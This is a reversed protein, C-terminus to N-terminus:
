SLTRFTWLYDGNLYQESEPVAHITGKKDVRHPRLGYASLLEVVNRISHGYHRASSEIQETQVVITRSAEIIRPAGRLVFLEYGEVDIKLYDIATVGLEAMCEDLPCMKIEVNGDTSVQTEGPNLPAYKMRVTRRADGAAINLATINTLGNMTITRQLFGFTFPHAEIAIVRGQRGVVQSARVTYTGINAGVDVFVGGSPVVRRILSQIEPDRDSQLYMAMTSFNAPMSVLRVGDSTSFVFEKTMSERIVWWVFKLTARWPQQAYWQTEQFWRYRERLTKLDYLFMSKGVVREPNM